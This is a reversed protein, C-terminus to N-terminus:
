IIIWTNIMYVIIKILLDEVDILISDSYRDNKEKLYSNSAEDQYTKDFM